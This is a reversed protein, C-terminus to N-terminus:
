VRMSIMPLLEALEAVRTSVVLFMLATEQVGPWLPFHVTCWVSCQVLLRLQWQTTATLELLRRKVDLTGPNMLLTLPAGLVSSIFM